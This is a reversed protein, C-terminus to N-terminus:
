PWFGTTGGQTFTQGERRSWFLMLLEGWREHLMMKYELTMGTLMCIFFFIIDDKRRCLKRQLHDRAKAGKLVATHVLQRSGHRASDTGESRFEGLHVLGAGTWTTLPERGSFRTSM